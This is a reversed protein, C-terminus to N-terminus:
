SLVSFVPGRVLVTLVVGLAIFPAFPITKQIQLRGGFDDFAGSQALTKLRQITELDLPREPRVLTTEPPFAQRTVPEVMVYRVEGGSEEKVVAEAPTMGVELAAMDVAEVIVPNALFLILSRLVVFVGLYIGVLVVLAQQAAGPLTLGMYILAVLCVSSGLIPLAASLSKARAWFALLQYVGIVMLFRMVPGVSISFREAAADVGVLVVTGVGIFGLLQFFSSLVTVPSLAKQLASRKEKQSTKLLAYVLLCVLYPVFTNIGLVL